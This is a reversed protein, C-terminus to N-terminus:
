KTLFQKEFSTEKKRKSEPERVISRLYDSASQMGERRLCESVVELCRIAQDTHEVWDFESQWDSIARATKQILPHAAYPDVPKM